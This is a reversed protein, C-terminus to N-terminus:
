QPRLADLVKRIEPSNPDLRAARRIEEMAEDRKGQLGLIVGLKCHMRANDPAFRLARRCLSVAEDLRDQRVYLDALIDYASVDDPRWRLAQLLHTQAKDLNGLQIYATALNNHASARTPMIAVAQLNHEISQRYLGLALLEAGLAVHARFHGPSHEVVMQFQTVAGRADGAAASLFRGYNFRLPWDHPAQRIANEYQQGAAEIAEPTLAAQQRALQRELREVWEDHYAQGTFPPQRVFSGLLDRTVRHHDWATYALLRAADAEDAVAVDTRRNAAIAPPLTETIAEFITRALLYNGAFTLHVHELFHENGPCGHLSNSEFAREADVLYVSHGEPGRAVERITQNVQTDPRFRLTDLDRARVFDTRAREFQGLAWRCRGLRFHLEAFSDDVRAADAYHQVADSWREARECLLGQEYDRRWRQSEEKTLDQRHLSTFPPCDKLNSGVTCFAVAAGTGLAARKIGELNARFQRYVRQLAPDDARVQHDLFMAMGEWELPQDERRAIWASAATLLQGLRTAKCRKSLQILPLSAASETFVTGPGYPGVVENNGLYVLFLDPDYRACDQAIEIVAHSNIATIATNVIEFDTNPYARRLMLGLVRSFGYAPEPVGAAASAGLVFIRYTGDGKDAPFSFPEGMRALYWPFFRRAFRPNDCATDPGREARVLIASPRYGYGFWRLGVELCLCFLVPTLVVAAVRFLWLRRRPIRVEKSSKM